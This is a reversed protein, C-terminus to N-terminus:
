KNKRIILFTLYNKLPLLYKFFHKKEYRLTQMFIHILLMFKKNNLDNEYNEYNIM